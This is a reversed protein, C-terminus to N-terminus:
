QNRMQVNKQLTVRYDNALKVKESETSDWPIDDDHGTPAINQGSGCGTVFLASLFMLSFRHTIKM